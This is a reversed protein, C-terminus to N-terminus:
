YRQITISPEHCTVNGDDCKVIEMHGCSWVTFIEAYGLSCGLVELMLDYSGRGYWDFVDGRPVYEPADAVRRMADIVNCDPLDEHAGYRDVIRGPMPFRWDVARLVVIHDIM